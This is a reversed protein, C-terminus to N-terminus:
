SSPGVGLSQCSGTAIQTSYFIFVNTPWQRWALEEDVGVLVHGRKGLVIFSCAKAEVYFYQFANNLSLRDPGSRSPRRGRRALAKDAVQM